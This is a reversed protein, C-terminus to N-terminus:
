GLSPPQNDPIPCPSPQFTTSVEYSPHGHLEPGRTTRVVIMENKKRHDEQQQLADMTLSKVTTQGDPDDKPTHRSGGGRLKSVISVINTIRSTIEAASPPHPTTDSSALSSNEPTDTTQTV